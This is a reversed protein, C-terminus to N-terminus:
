VLKIKKIECGMGKYTNNRNMALKQCENFKDQIDMIMPSQKGDSNRMIRGVLQKLKTGGGMPTTIVLTDLSPIDLSETAKNMIAFLVQAKEINSDVLRDEIFLDCRIKPNKKRFMFFLFKLHKKRHSVLLVKRNKAMLKELILLIDKNRNNDDVMRNILKPLFVRSWDRYNAVYKTEVQWGTHYWLVLPKTNVVDDGKKKEFIILGNNWLFVSELGDARHPTGTLGFRFRAKFLSVSKVWESASFKHIEDTVVVGFRDFQKGVKAYDFTLLKQVTSIVIDGSFDEVDGMIYSVRVGKFYKEFQKRAQEAMYRQFVIFMGKRGIEKVLMAGLLTKGEGCPLVIVGSERNKRFSEIFEKQSNRISGSFDSISIKDGDVMEDKIKVSVPFPFERPMFVSDNNESYFKLLTSEKNPIRMRDLYSKRRNDFTLSVRISKLVESSFDKKRAVLFNSKIIM